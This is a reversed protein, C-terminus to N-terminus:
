AGGQAAAQARVAARVGCIGVDQPRVAATGATILQLVELQDGIQDLGAFVMDYGAALSAVRTIARFGHDPLSDANLVGALLRLGVQAPSIPDLRFEAGSRYRPFIIASLPVSGIACRADGPDALADFHGTVSALGPMLPLIEHEFVHLGAIKIKFPAAFGQVGAPREPLRALADLHVLEDTQYKFGRATLFATLTSKGSGSVGPLLLGGGGWSVAGAHLLLGGTGARALRLCAMHLLWSAVAGTSRDVCCTEGQSSLTFAGAEDEILRLTAFPPLSGPDAPVRAFLFEVIRAARGESYELQVSAGGFTLVRKM